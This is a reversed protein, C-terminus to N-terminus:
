MRGLLQVSVRRGARWAPFLALILTLSTIVSASAVLREASLRSYLVPDMVAGAASLEGEGQYFVDLPLGSSELYLHAGYGLTMGVSTSLLALLVAETFMMFFRGSSSLGIADLLAYERKRELASMLLTNLVVFAILLLFIGNFLYNGADDIRIFETLEPMAETWDLVEASEPLDMRGRQALAGSAEVDEVFVAVQHVQRPLLLLDQAVGLPIIVLSQDLDELGTQLIGSVRLLRSQLESSGAAQSLVVFKSGLGVRLKRAVGSGIVAQDGAGPRVFEGQVLKEGFKSSESEPGPQTGIIRVGTSGDASSALGSAFVREVVNQVPSADGQREIWTRIRFRTEERLARQVGGHAQYGRSQILVHGSGMRVANDIMQLHSGDGLGLTVLLLALGLAVTVVTLATRRRNRGLNRWALKFIIKM